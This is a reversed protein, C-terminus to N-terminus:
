RRSARAALALGALNDATAEYFQLLNARLRARRAYVPALMADRALVRDCVAVAPRVDGLQACARELGKWYPESAPEHHALQGWHFAAAFWHQAQEHQLAQQQQWHPDLRARAQRSGLEFADASLSFDVLEIRHGVIRAIVPRSPHTTADHSDPAKVPAPLRAGTRADWALPGGTGDSCFLTAGDASFGRLRLTGTTGPLTLLEKGSAVEWVNVRNDQGISALRRGDPSFVVGHVMQKHGRLTLLEKGSDVEWLKVTQDASASALRQGDPSFAVNVVRETHGELTLREKGADVQWVKVTESSSATALRQGDPSFAVNNVQKAHARLSLLEKGTAADWVRVMGPGTMPDRGCTVLRQGDPSFAVGTVFGATLSVLVKGSAAEWVKVTGNQDASVLRMGDPSFAVGRVFGAPLSLLQKGGAAEWV